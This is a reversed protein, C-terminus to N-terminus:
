SRDHAADEERIALAEVIKEPPALEGDKDWACGLRIVCDMNPYWWFERLEEQPVKRSDKVPVKPEYTGDGSTDWYSVRRAGHRFEWIGSRLHKVDSRYQPEGYVGLHEIKALMKYYDHVQESDRPPNHNPDETRAGRRM